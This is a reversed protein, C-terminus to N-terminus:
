ERNSSFQFVKVDAMLRDNTFFACIILLNVTVQRDRVCNRARVLVDPKKNIYAVNQTRVRISKYLVVDIVM